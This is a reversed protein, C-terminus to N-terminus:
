ARRVPVQVHIEFHEMGHAFPRGMWAEFGPQDAPVYGSRPLWCGYLWQLCRLELDLGGRVEVQAVAMPPFRYRGIEGEATFRGAEVAVHYQCDELAVVEPNDWQYGLWQGDALGQREAWAVLRRAAKVVGDGQYPNHVRIYAVTRAPLERVKVRFGDPNERAPLRDIHMGEAPGLVLAELRGLHAERWGGLDFSRPPVGFRQKFCRSFDSSSNFGCALAIATLSSKRSHCMMVLSRDLRLRKVFEALTEGVLVRFVRHFHYPSLLAARAVDDLRLPEGLHNVVYDIGRNVREVYALSTPTSVRRSTRM